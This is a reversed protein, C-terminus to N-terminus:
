KHYIVSISHLSFTKKIVFIKFHCSAYHFMNSLSTWVSNKSYSLAFQLRHVYLRARPSSLNMLFIARIKYNSMYSVSFYWLGWFLSMVIPINIDLGM